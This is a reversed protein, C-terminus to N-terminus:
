LFRLDGLLLLLEVLRDEHGRQGACRDHGLTLRSV